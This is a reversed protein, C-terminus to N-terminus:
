TRHENRADREERPFEGEGGGLRETEEIEKKLHLLKSSGLM